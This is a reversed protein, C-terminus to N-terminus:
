PEPEFRRTGSRVAAGTIIQRLDPQTALRGSWADYAALTEEESVALMQAYRRLHARVYISAGWGEFRGAEIAEVTDKPLHLREAAEEISLGAQMRAIQLRAAPSGTVSQARETAM